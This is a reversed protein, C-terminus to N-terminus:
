RSPRKITLANLEDTLLNVRSEWKAESEAKLDLAESQYSEIQENLGILSDNLKQIKMELEANQSELQRNRDQGTNLSAVIREKQSFDDKLIMM